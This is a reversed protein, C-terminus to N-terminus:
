TTVDCVATAENFLKHFASAISVATGKVRRKIINESETRVAGTTVRGLAYRSDQIYLYDSTLVSRDWEIVKPLDIGMFGWTAVPNNFDALCTYYSILQTKRGVLINAKYPTALKTAITIVDATGIVGTSAPNFPTVANSNGDGYVGVYIADDCEDIAMQMGIRELCVNFIPIPVLDLHEYPVNLYLGHVKLAITKDAVKMWVDKLEAGMTTEEMQRDAEGENLYIKKFDMGRITEDSALLQPLISAALMGAYIRNSIYQPLLTASDSYAFFKGLPDALQGFARIGAAQMAQEFATLPVQKGAAVLEKKVKNVEAATLGVYPTAEKESKRMELWMQFTLGLREAEEYMEAELHKEGLWGLKEGLPMQNKMIEM